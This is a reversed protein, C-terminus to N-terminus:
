NWGHYPDGGRGDFNPLASLGLPDYDVKAQGQSRWTRKHVTYAFTIALADAWDPSEKGEAAMDEKSVLMIEDKKNYFYEIQVLQDQLEESDPIMGGSALWQKLTVYMEARKNGVLTGNPRGSPKSGFNVGICSHGLHRVFDVVGGGVGGEDIFVADCEHEANLAAVRSGLEVTSLGRFRQTPITRADNGRRFMIVSENTGYRAVDVAMILAEYAASTAPRKRAAEISDTPILQSSSSVPFEGLYRVKVYDSDMGWDAIAKAIKASNSFSVERSDVKYTHWSDRFRHWCEFFRGYNRTPNGTAIWILETDGEHMVGDVVEWIKDNISSAEDFVMIIRKGYNHLGAFAEPNDESWPIADVRWNAAWEPDAACLSTASWRFMSGAIFLRHWKALEAWLITRLQKETNATARGRTGERTSLAWLMVWSLFASKGIGHGSRVAIQWAESLAANFHGEGGAVMALQLDLLTKKQWGEPGSRHELETGAEGWPFAWLVFDYPRLSLEALDNLLAEQVEAM